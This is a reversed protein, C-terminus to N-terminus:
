KEKVKKMLKTLYNTYNSNMKFELIELLDKNDVFDLEEFSAKYIDKNQIMKSFYFKKYEDNLIDFLDEKM